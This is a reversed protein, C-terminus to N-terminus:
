STTSVRALSDATRRSPFASNCITTLKHLTSVEGDVVKGSFPPARWKSSFEEAAPVVDVHSPGLMIRPSGSGYSASLWILFLVACCAPMQSSRLRFRIQQLLQTTSISTSITSIVTCALLMTSNSAHAASTFRHPDHYSEGLLNLRKPADPHHYTQVEIGRKSFYEELVKINKEECCQGDGFNECRTGILTQLLEVIEGRVASADGGLLAQAESSTVDAFESM